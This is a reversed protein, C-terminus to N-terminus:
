ASIQLPSVKEGRRPNGACGATRSRKQPSATTDTDWGGTVYHPPYMCYYNGLYRIVQLQRRSPVSSILVSWSKTTWM